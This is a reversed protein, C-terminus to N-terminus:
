LLILGHETKCKINSHRFFEVLVVPCYDMSNGHFEWSGIFYGHFNCYTKKEHIIFYGPTFYHVWSCGMFLHTKMLKYVMFIQSIVAM